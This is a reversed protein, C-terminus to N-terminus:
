LQYRPEPGPELDIDLLACSGRDRPLQSPQSIRFQQQRKDMIHTASPSSPELMDKVQSEVDGTYAHWADFRKDYAKKVSEDCSSGQTTPITWDFRCFPQGNRKYVQYLTM